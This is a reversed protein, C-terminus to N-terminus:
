SQIAIDASKPNKLIMTRNANKGTTILNLEVNLIQASIKEV